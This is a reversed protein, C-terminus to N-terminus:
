GGTHSHTPALGPRGRRLPQEPAIPLYEVAHYSVTKPRGTTSGAIEAIVGGPALVFLRNRAVDVALAPAHPSTVGDLRVEDSGWADLLDVDLTTPDAGYEALVALGTRTREWTLVAPEGLDVESGGAGGLSGPWDIWVYADGPHACLCYAIAVLGRATWAVASLDLEPGFRYRPGTLRRLARLTRADVVLVGSQPAVLALRSRDRSFAWTTAHTGVRLRRAGTLPKLTRPDLRTLIVSRGSGVFGLLPEVAASSSRGKVAGARRTRERATAPGLVLARRPGGRM